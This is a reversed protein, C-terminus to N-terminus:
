DATPPLRAGAWEEIERIGDAGMVDRFVAIAVERGRLPATDPWMEVQEAAARAWDAMLKTFPLLFTRNLAILHVRQVM